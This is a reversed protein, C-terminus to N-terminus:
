RLLSIKAYTFLFSILTGCGWWRGLLYFILTSMLSCLEVPVTTQQKTAEDVIVEGIDVNRFKWTWAWTLQCNSRSRTNMSYSLSVLIPFSFAESRTFGWNEHTRLHRFSDRLCQWRPNRGEQCPDASAMTFHQRVVCTYSYFFWTFGKWISKM